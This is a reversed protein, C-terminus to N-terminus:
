EFLDGQKNSKDFMMNYQVMKYGALNEGDGSEWLPMKDTLDLLYRQHETMKVGAADLLLASLFSSSIEVDHKEEIPYNAWIFFPVTHKKIEM